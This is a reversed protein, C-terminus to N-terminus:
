RHFVSGGSQYDKAAILDKMGALILFRNDVAFRYQFVVYQQILGVVVPPIPPVLRPLTFTDLTIMKGNM